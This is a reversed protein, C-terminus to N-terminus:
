TSATATSTVNENPANTAKESPLEVRALAYKARTRSAVRQLGVFVHRTRGSPPPGTEIGGCSANRSRPTVAAARQRGYLRDADSSGAGAIARACGAVASRTAAAWRDELAAFCERGVLRAVSGRAARARDAPSAVACAWDMRASVSTTAKADALPDARSPTRRDTRGARREAEM